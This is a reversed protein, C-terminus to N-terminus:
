GLGAEVVRDEEISKALGGNRTFAANIERIEPNDDLFALIDSYSFEEEDMELFHEFIKTVLELDEPEDVTWRENGHNGMNSEFDQLVFLDPHKIIYQTVHERQSSLNAEEWARKLASFKIIELDLGDPFTESIMGLYDSTDKMQSIAEDLLSSDFCPCDATIRVVYEPSLSKTAQYYRDLVDKESGAFVRVGLESCLGVIAADEPLDTTAVMCEDLLRSKTVRRIVWELEPRGCLDKLVKGPLRSSGSRAQIIALYKM